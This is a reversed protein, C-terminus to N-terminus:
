IFNLDCKVALFSYVHTYLEGTDWFSHGQYDELLSGRSLSGPSLGYFPNLVGHHELAPLSSLLYYYSPYIHSQIDFNDTEIRGFQWLNSFKTTHSEVLEAVKGENIMKMALEFEEKTPGENIDISSVFARVVSEQGDELVVNEPETFYMYVPITAKQFEDFEIDRTRGRLIFYGNERVLPEFNFDNSTYNKLSDVNVTVKGTIGFKRKVQIHTILLRNYYQHAFIRREIIM